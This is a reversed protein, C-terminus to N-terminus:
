IRLGAEEDRDLPFLDDADLGHGLYKAPQYTPLPPMFTSVLGTRKGRIWLKMPQAPANTLEPM